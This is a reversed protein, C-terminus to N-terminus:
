RVEPFHLKSQVTLGVEAMIKWINHETSPGLLHLVEAGSIYQGESRGTILEFALLYNSESLLELPMVAAVFEHFSIALSQDINVHQFVLKVDNAEFGFETQLDQMSLTSSQSTDLSRFQRRVKDLQDYQLTHAVVCRFINALMSRTTCADLQHLVQTKMRLKMRVEEKEVDEIAVEKAVAVALEIRPCQNLWPHRLAEQATPRSQSHRRLCMKIFDKASDSVNAFAVEGFRWKNRKINDAINDEDNSFPPKGSLLLYAFTGVSWVDSKVDGILFLCNLFFDAM